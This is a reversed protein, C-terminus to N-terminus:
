LLKNLPIYAYRIQGQGHPEHAGGGGRSPPTLEPVAWRQSM